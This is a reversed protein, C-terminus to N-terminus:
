LEGQIWARRFNKSWYRRPLILLSNCHAPLALVPILSGCLRARPLLRRFIMNSNFRVTLGAGVGASIVFTHVSRDHENTIAAAIARWEEPIEEPAKGKYSFLRKATISLLQPMEEVAGDISFILNAPCDVQPLARFLLTNAQVVHAYYVTGERLLRERDRYIESLSDSETLWAPRPLRLRKLPRSAYNARMQELETKFNM